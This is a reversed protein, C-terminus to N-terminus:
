LEAEVFGPLYRYIAIYADLDEATIPDDVEKQGTDPRLQADNHRIERFTLNPM